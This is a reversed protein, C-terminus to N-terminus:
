SHPLSASHPPNKSKQKRLSIAREFPELGTEGLAGVREGLAFMESVGDNRFDQLPHGSM